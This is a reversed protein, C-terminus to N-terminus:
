CMDKKCTTQDEEICKILCKFSNYTEKKMEETLEQYGDTQKKSIGTELQLAKGNSIAVVNPAYIRKEGVEIKEDNENTLTYDELVNSMKEILSNYGETGEKTTNINGDENIEKVDRIEKVDVYYIKEINNKKAVAVLEELVSRCWPCEKFGFYVIFTEKNDIKKSIEEATSYIFPNDEDISITRYEKGNSENKTGNLSEYEEKFKIADTKTIEKKTCGTLTVLIALTLIIVLIKKM